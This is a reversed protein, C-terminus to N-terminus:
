FWSGITSTVSHWAAGSEKGAWDAARVTAHGVDNCVDKFPTFHHYLFDGALYIGTGAIAVEGVVPMEDVALNVALLAANVGAVTRDATAMNGHDPPSILTGADALIGLGGLTYGLGKIGALSGAATRLWCPSFAMWADLKTGTQEALNGAEILADVAPKGDARLAAIADVAKGVEKVWESPVGAIKELAGIWHDAAAIDFPALVAELVKRVPESRDWLSAQAKAAEGARRSAALYRQHLEEAQGHIVSLQASASQVGARVSSSAPHAAQQARLSGLQGSASAARRELADAEAQFGALQGAWSATVAHVGEAAGAAQRLAPSIAGLCARTADGARGQWRSLDIRETLGQAQRLGGAIEAQRRALSATGAVDGPAPDFGLHPLSRAYASM